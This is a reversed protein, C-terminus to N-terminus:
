PGVSLAAISLAIPILAWLPGFAVGVVLGILWLDINLLTAQFIRATSRDTM